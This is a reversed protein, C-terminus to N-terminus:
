EIIVLAGFLAVEAVKGGTITRAGLKFWRDM